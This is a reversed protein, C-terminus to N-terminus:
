RQLYAAPNQTAFEHYLLITFLKIILWLLLHSTCLYNLAEFSSFHYWSCFGAQSPNNWCFFSQTVFGEYFEVRWEKLFHWLIGIEASLPKNWSFLFFGELFRTFIRGIVRGLVRTFIRRHIRIFVRGHFLSFIRGLIKWLVWVIALTVVLFGVVVVAFRMVKEICTWWSCTWFQFNWWWFLLDWLKNLLSLQFDWLLLNRCMGCSYNKM